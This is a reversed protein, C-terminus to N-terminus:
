TEGEARWIGHRALSERVFIAILKGFGHVPQVMAMDELETKVQIAHMIVHVIEVSRVAAVVVIIAVVEDGVEVLPLM